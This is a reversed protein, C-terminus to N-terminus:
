RPLQLILNPDPCIKLFEGAQSPAAVGPFDHQYHLLTTMLQFHLHPPWDGNEPYNGVTGIAQGSAVGDGLSKGQLSARSLHGYLSFFRQEELRHELILTPGYNGFGANDALGVIQGEAPACVPTGAPVWLDIGLHVSRPEEGQYHESRRYIVRNEGYGGAGIRGRLWEDFLFRSFQATDILDVSALATNQATLDLWLIEDPTTFPIVPCFRHNALLTVLSSTPM